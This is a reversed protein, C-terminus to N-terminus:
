TARVLDYAESAVAIASRYDGIQNLISAKDLLFEASESTEEPFQSELERAMEIAGKLDRNGCLQTFLKLQEIYEPSKIRSM